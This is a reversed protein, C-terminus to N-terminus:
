DKTREALVQRSIGGLRIFGDAERLPECAALLAAEWAQQAAEDLGAMARNLGFSRVWAILDEADAAEMVPVWQQELALLQLGAAALDQEIRSQEAYAFTGPQTLDPLPLERWPALVRRPLTFFSAQEPEVWLAAVFRGGPKLVRRVEHLATLPQKFYMLGWRLLVADFHADALGDLREANGERLQLLGAPLGVASARERALSLMSADLDQALVQGGPHVRWAAPIAPEGRGCALDLVQQGPALAALELMRQSLPTSLRREAEDFRRWIAELSSASM